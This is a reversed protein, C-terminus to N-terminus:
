ARPEQAPPHTRTSVCGVVNPADPVCGVSAHARDINALVGNLLKIVEQADVTSAFETYPRGDDFKRAGLFAAITGGGM